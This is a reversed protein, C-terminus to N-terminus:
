LECNVGTAKCHEQLKVGFNSTFEGLTGLPWGDLNASRNPVRGFWPHGELKTASRRLGDQSEPSDCERGNRALMGGKPASTRLFCFESLLIFPDGRLEDSVLMSTSACCQSFGLEERGTSPQVQPSPAFHTNLM